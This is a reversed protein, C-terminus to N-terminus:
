RNQSVQYQLLHREQDVSSPLPRCWRYRTNQHLCQCARDQNAHQAPHTLPTMKGKILGSQGAGGNAIRLKITENKFEFGGSYVAEPPVADALCNGLLVSIAIFHLKMNFNTSLLITLLPILFQPHQAPTTM